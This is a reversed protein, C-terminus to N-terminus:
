KEPNGEVSGGVFEIEVKTLRLTPELWRYFEKYVAEIQRQIAIKWQEILWNEESIRVWEAIWQERVTEQLHKFDKIHIIENKEDIVTATTNQVVIEPEPLKIKVSVSWQNDVYTQMECYKKFDFKLAAQWEVIMGVKRTEFQNLVWKIPKLVEFWWNNNDIDFLPAEWESYTRFTTQYSLIHLIEKMETTTSYSNIKIWWKKDWFHEVSYMWIVGLLFAFWIAIFWWVNSWSELVRMEWIFEPHKKVILLYEKLKEAEKDTLWYDKLLTNKLIGLNSINTWKFENNIKSQYQNLLKNTKDVINNEQIKKDELVKHLAFFNLKQQTTMSNFNIIDKLWLISEIYMRMFPAKEAKNITEQVNIGSIKKWEKGFVRECCKKSIKEVWSIVLPDKSLTEFQKKDKEIGKNLNLLELNTNRFIEDQERHYSEYEISM